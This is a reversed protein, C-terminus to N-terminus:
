ILYCLELSIFNSSNSFKNNSSSVITYSPFKWEKTTSFTISPAFTVYLLSFEKLSTPSYSISAVIDLSPYTVSVNVAVNLM